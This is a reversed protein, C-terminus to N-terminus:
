RIHYYLNQKVKLYRTVLQSIAYTVSPYNYSKDLLIDSPKAYKIAKV